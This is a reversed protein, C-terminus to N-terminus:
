FEVDPLCRECIQWARVTEDSELIFVKCFKCHVNPVVPKPNPDRQEPLDIPLTPEKGM